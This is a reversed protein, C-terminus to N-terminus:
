NIFYSLGFKNLIEWVHPVRCKSFNIFSFLITIAFTPTLSKHKDVFHKDSLLTTFFSVYFIVQQSVLAFIQQPIKALVYFGDKILEDALIAVCAIAATHLCYIASPTTARTCSLSAM